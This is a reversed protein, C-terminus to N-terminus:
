HRWFEFKPSVGLIFGARDGGELIGVLGVASLELMDTAAWAVGTTAILQHPDSSLFHVGGLEATLSWHAARDLDFDLDLGVEFGRPRGGDGSGPDVFMGGNLVAHWRGHRAGALAVAELGIGHTGPAVPFKPGIQLGIAAGGGPGDVSALGIKAAAWLSDPAAHDFGFTGDDPGEIAYAGDLDLELNRLLGLDLELDPIVIRSADSGRVVGFQLDAELAGTEELELDTPEFLPRLRRGAARAPTALAAIGLAVCAVSFRL